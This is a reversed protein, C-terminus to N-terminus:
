VDEYLDIRDALLERIREHARHLRDRVARESVGVTRAIDELRLKHYYRLVVVERLKDNLTQIARWLALDTERQMIVKEPHAASSGSMRAMGQLVQALRERARRKRLRGRCVNLTIAYLWTTFASDGRFSDLRNIAAVLADQAAEDAEAPDDLISLALRYVQTQHGHVLAEVAAADGARCRSILEVANSQDMHIIM